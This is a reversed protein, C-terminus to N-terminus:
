WHLLCGALSDSREVSMVWHGVTLDVHIMDVATTLRGLIGACPSQAYQHEDHRQVLLM